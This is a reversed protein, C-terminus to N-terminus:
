LGADMCAPAAIKICHEAILELVATVADSEIEIWEHTQDPKASEDHEDAAGERQGVPAQPHPRRFAGPPSALAESGGCLVIGTWRRAEPGLNQGLRQQSAQAMRKKTEIKKKATGGTLATSGSSTSCSAPSSARARWM